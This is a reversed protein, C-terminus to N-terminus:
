RIRFLKAPKQDEWSDDLEDADAIPGRGGLLKWFEAVDPETDKDTESITIKVPKGGREDDIAQCLAAAKVREQGGCKVGQFQFLKLGADLVFVDGSNLSKASNPVESVRVNRRGKIHMLRPRYETPKVHNFGSDIGGALVRIGGRPAFYSCFLASEHDQVERHQM